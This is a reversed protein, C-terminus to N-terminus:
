GPTRGEPEVTLSQRKAFIASAIDFRMRTVPLQIEPIAGIRAAGSHHAHRGTHRYNRKWYM